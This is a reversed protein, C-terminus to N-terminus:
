QIRLNKVCIIHDPGSLCSCISRALARKSVQIVKYLIIGEPSPGSLTLKPVLRPGKLGELLLARAALPYSTEM